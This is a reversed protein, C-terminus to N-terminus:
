DAPSWRWLGYCGTAFWADGTAPDVRVWSAENGGDLGGGDGSGDLPETRTLSAWTRGGDRSVMAGVSSKHANTHQAAYLRGPRGPDTAVSAVNRGWRADGPTDLVEVGTDADFRHLKKDAVFYVGDGGVEPAVDRIRAYGGVLPRWAVGGDASTVVAADDGDTQRVGYLLGGQAAVVGHCGTMREWSGGADATRFPGCFWVGERRPDALSSELGFTAPDSRNGDWTAGPVERMTEGGDTSVTVVRLGDWGEGKGVILTRDDVAFGGYAMGGWGDGSANVYSWTRGGDRTIAGNYDQAGLYVTGPSASGFHFAGGVKIGNIGDGAWAFTEGGDLSRTAWDGGVTHGIRANTPSWAVAWHRVNFPLFALDNDFAAERFGRGGDGSVHLKWSWDEDRSRVALRDADVPSATPHEFVVGERGELSVGTMPSDAWTRGGDHSIKLGGPHAVWLADPRDPSVAVGAFNGALLLRFSEGRDESVSLGGPHTAYLVGRRTPHTVLHGGAFPESGPLREWTEGGDSTRYLAPDPQVEGWKAEDDRIRSWYADTCFGLAEDFSAADYALQQRFDVTSSIRAVLKHEWSGARDTSLWIGHADSAVSNAGVSLCRDPNAPDIAVACTGRPEYGVNAPEWTDGGDLTRFLGGVDTGYILFSGDAGDIALSRIWQGGEGGRTVAPDTLADATVWPVAHWAGAASGASSAPAPLALLLAALLAPAPRM